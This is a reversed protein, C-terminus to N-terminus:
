TAMRQQQKKAGSDIMSLRGGFRWPLRRVIALKVKEGHDAGALQALVLKEMDDLGYQDLM